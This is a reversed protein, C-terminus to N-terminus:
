RKIPLGARAWANMGGTMNHVQTFGAGRLIGAAVGSRNGSRCVAIIERERPLEALRQSLQGLPILTAGPAHGARWESPERVDLLIAGQKARQQADTPTVDQSAGAPAAASALRSFFANLM